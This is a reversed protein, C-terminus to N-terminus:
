EITIRMREGDNTTGTRGVGGFELDKLDPDPLDEQEMRENEGNRLRAECARAQEPMGLDVLLDVVDYQGGEEQAWALLRMVALFDVESADRCWRLIGCWVRAWTTMWEPRLTGAAERIEVTTRRPSEDQMTDEDDALESDRGGGRHYSLLRYSALNYAASKTNGLNCLLTGVLGASFDAGLLTAVGSMVDQRRPPDLQGDGNESDQYSSDGDGDGDSDGEGEGEGERLNANSHDKDDETKWQRLPVPPISRVFIPKRPRPPALPGTEYTKAKATGGAPTQIDVKPPGYRRRLEKDEEKENEEEECNSSPSTMHRRNQGHRAPEGLERFSIDEGMEARIALDTLEHIGLTGRAARVYRRIKKLLDDDAINYPEGVWRDRGSFRAMAQDVDNLEGWSRAVAQPDGSGLRSINYRRLSRSYMHNTRHPPHLVSLLPSAAWIFAGLKRVTRADIHRGLGVGIHVHFGCTSNVRCRFSSTMTTLALRILDFSNDKDWMAPSILEIGCYQYGASSQYEHISFDHTISFASTCGVGAQRQQISGPAYGEGGEVPLGVEVLAKTLQRRIHLHRAFSSGMERPIRLLPALKDAIDQDPDPEDEYVWAVVFELEVGFSIGAPKIAPPNCVGHEGPAAPEDELNPESSSQRSATALPKEGPPGSVQESADINM